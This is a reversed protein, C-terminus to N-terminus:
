ITNIKKKQEDEGSFVCRVIINKLRKSSSEKKKKKTLCSSSEKDGCASM